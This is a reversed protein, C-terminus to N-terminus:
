NKWVFPPRRLDNNGRNLEDAVRSPDRALAPLVTGFLSLARSNSPSAAAVIPHPSSPKLAESWQRRWLFAFLFFVFIISETCM